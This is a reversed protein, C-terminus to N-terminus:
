GRSLVAFEEAVKAMQADYKEVRSPHMAPLKGCTRMGVYSYHEIYRVIPVKVQLLLGLSHPSTFLRETFLSKVGPAVSLVMEQLESNSFSGILLLKGTGM